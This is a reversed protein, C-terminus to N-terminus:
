FSSASVMPGYQRGPIDMGDLWRQLDEEGTVTGDPRCIIEIPDKVDSAAEGDSVVYGGKLVWKETDVALTRSHNSGGPSDDDDSSGSLGYQMTISLYKLRHDEPRGERLWEGLITINKLYDRTIFSDYGKRKDEEYDDLLRKLAAEFFRLAAETIAINM